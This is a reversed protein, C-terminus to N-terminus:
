WRGDTSPIARAIPQSVIYTPSSNTWRRPAAIARRAASASAEISPMVSSVGRSRIAPRTDNRIAPQSACCAISSSAARVNQMMRVSGSTSARRILTPKQVGLVLEVPEEIADPQKGRM